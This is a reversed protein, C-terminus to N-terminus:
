WLIDGSVSKGIGARVYGGLEDIGSVGTLTSQVAVIWPRLADLLTAAAARALVLAIAVEEAIRLLKASQL